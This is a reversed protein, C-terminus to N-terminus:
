EKIDTLVQCLAEGLVHVAHHKLNLNYIDSVAHVVEHLFTALEAAGKLDRQVSIRGPNPEWLGIARGECLEKARVIPIRYAAIGISKPLSNKKATRQTKAM